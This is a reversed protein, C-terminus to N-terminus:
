MLALELVEEVRKVPHFTIEERLNPPIEELDGENRYPLIIERIGARHAAIVKEKIGGVPLVVGRLTIEGTMALGDRMCRGTLLSALASVLTVGASPGDKPIAGSPIHLHFSQESFAAEDIKMQEARAHIFSMAAHASEKMVEGLQGTLTLKGNGKMATAEIFLIEGGVPTWALGVAVGPTAVDEKVEPYFKPPGLTARVRAEDMQLPLPLAETAVDRACSRLVAAVQRNLTRVGAERTYRQIIQRLAEDSVEVQEPKLGHEDLQRPLLHRRAIHLKEEHIYGPIDIVEMRDRLAPPITDLRNATTIFLVRSLDVPVELYHDSFANNQEPDLVELLASAPDGRFDSTLKDIEDLIFVPNNTGARKLGKIIRGPLSGVYTRRHGRIEAEDRMGGLSVQVFERGLAQAVSRGLSTKGVGPPGALCLIPGRMDNKLKRVALYEIIRRKVKDLGYHHAELVEAASNIDLNDETTTNWPVDLLWDIYTRSVTYEASQQNMRALRKLEREAAKMALEPMESEEVQQRLDDLDDGGGNDDGLEKRIARLQERLYVERQHQDLRDKVESRISNSVDLIALEYGVHHIVARLRAKLEVTELVRQKEEASIKLQTCVLDALHGPATITELVSLLEDPLRSSLHVIKAAMERLTRQLADLEVDAEGEESIPTVEVRLYEDTEIFRRIRGRAKGEILLEKGSRGQSVRLIRAITGIEHVDGSGPWEDEPDRQAAIFILGAENSALEIARMTKDRGVNLPVPLSPIPFIVANKVAIMPLEIVSGDFVLDM